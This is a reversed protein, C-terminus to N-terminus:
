KARGEGNVVRWGLESQWTALHRALAEHGAEDQLWRKALNLLEAYAKTMRLRGQDAEMLRSYLEDYDKKKGAGHPGGRASVRPRRDYACLKRRLGDMRQWGGEEIVSDSASKLCNLSMPRIEQDPISLAALGRQTRLAKWVTAPIREPKQLARELLGYRALVGKESLDRM